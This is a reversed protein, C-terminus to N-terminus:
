AAIAMEGEDNDCAQEPEVRAPEVEAVHKPVPAVLRTFVVLMGLAAYTGFVAWPNLLLCVALPVRLLLPNFGLDEGLAECIGFINHDRAWVPIPNTQM